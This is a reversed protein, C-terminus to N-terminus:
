RGTLRETAAAAPGHGDPRRRLPPPPAPLSAPTSCSRSWRARRSVSRSAAAAFSPDISYDNRDIRLYPQQPVRVVQRPDCDPMTAPLPHMRWREEALREAPVARITRHVRGNVADCWGDLQLQFDLPNPLRGVASSTRACFATRGSSCGRDQADLNDSIEYFKSRRDDRGTRQRQCRQPHKFDMRSEVVIEMPVEPIPPRAIAGSARLRSQHDFRFSPSTAGNGPGPCAGVGSQTRARPCWSVRPTQRAPLPLIAAVGAASCARLGAQMVIAERALAKRANGIEDSGPHGGPWSSQTPM